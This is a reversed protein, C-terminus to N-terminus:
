AIFVLLLVGLVVRYAVYPWYGIRSNWTMLVHIAALACLFSGVLGTLMALMDTHWTVSGMEMDLLGLTAIAMTVPIAMLSSFRSSAARDYGLYRGATMTIGSRSIGPVLAIAQFLGFVIANKLSVAPSTRTVTRTDAWWLVIGFVISNIALIEVSRAGTAVWDKLVAGLLLVPITAIILAIAEQTHPHDLKGSLGRLGGMILNFVDHRFYLLVAALTGMHVTIDFNAGQDPWGFLHPIAILHASSSIPLFEAIGQVIALTLAHTLDM